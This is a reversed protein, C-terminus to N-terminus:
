EPPPAPPPRSLQHCDHEWRVNEGRTTQSAPRCLARVKHHLPLHSLRSGGCHTADSPRDGSPPALSRGSETGGEGPPAEHALWARPARRAPDTRVRPSPLATSARAKGNTRSSIESHSGCVLRCVVKRFGLRRVQLNPQPLPPARHLSGGARPDGPAEGAQSVSGGCAAGGGGVGEGASGRPLM